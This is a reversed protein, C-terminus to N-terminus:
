KTKKNAKYTNEYGNLTTKIANIYYYDEQTLDDNGKTNLHTGIGKLDELVQKWMDKRDM